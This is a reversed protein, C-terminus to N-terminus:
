STPRLLAEGNRPAWSCWARGAEPMKSTFFRRPAVTRGSPAELLHLRAVVLARFSLREEREVVLWVVLEELAPEFLHLLLTECPPTVDVKSRSRPGRVSDRCCLVGGHDRRAEGRARGRAHRQRRGHLVLARAVWQVCTPARLSRAPRVDPDPFRAGRKGAASVDNVTVSTPACDTRCDTASCDIAHSRVCAV